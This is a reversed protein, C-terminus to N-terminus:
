LFTIQLLFGDYNATALPWLMQFTVHGPSGPWTIVKNHRSVVVNKFDLLPQLCDNNTTAISWLLKFTWLVPLNPCQPQLILCSIEVEPPCTLRIAVALLVIIPSYKWKNVYGEVDFALFSRVTLYISNFKNLLSVYLYYDYISRSICNKLM